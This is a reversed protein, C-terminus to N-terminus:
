SLKRFRLHSQVGCEGDPSKWLDSLVPVLASLKIPLFREWAILDGSDTTLINIMKDKRVRLSRKTVYASVVICESVALLQTAKFTNFDSLSWAWPRHRKINKSCVLTQFALWKRGDANDQKWITGNLITTQHLSQMQFMNLRIAASEQWMLLTRHMDTM